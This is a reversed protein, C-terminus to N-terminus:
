MCIIVYRYWTAVAPFLARMCCPSHPFCLSSMTGRLKWFTVARASTTKTYDKIQHMKNGDWLGVSGASGDSQTVDLM